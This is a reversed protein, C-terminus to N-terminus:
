WMSHGTTRWPTVWMKAARTSETEFFRNKESHESDHWIVHRSSKYIDKYLLSPNVNPCDCEVTLVTAETPFADQWKQLLCYYCISYM